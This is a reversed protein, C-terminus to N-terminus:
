KLLKAIEELANSPDEGLGDVKARIVGDQDLVSIINSHAFNGDTQKEYKIDLLVSLMRVMSEDGHLLKWNAGLKEKTKFEKLREPSDREVDFSVLLFDVQDKKDDPIREEIIKMDAVLRPCAYECHSFIMSVIQIKGKFQELEVTQKDETTWEGSLQYLSEGSFVSSETSLSDTPKCCEKEEEKKDRNCSIFGLLFLLSFLRIFKKM